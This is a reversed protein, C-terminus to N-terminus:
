FEGLVEGGARTSLAKYTHYDMFTNLFQVHGDGFLFNVGSGHLSWFQNVYSGKAGPGVGDGTHGLIMGSANDM